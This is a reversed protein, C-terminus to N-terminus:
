GGVRGLIGYFVIQIILDFLIPSVSCTAHVPSVTAALDLTHVTKAGEFVPMTPEFGVRPM